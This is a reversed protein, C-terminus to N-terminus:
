VEVVIEGTKVNVDKILKHGKLKENVEKWSHTKRAKKIEELVNSLLQYKEYILEGKRQNEDASTQLEKIKDEQMTIMKQIRAQEKQSKTAPTKAESEAALEVASNFTKQKKKELDKYLELEFPAVSKIKNDSYYTVPNIKKTILSKISKLLGKAQEEDIKEGNQKVCSLMCIEKAYVGGFGLDVAITKSIPKKQKKIQKKLGDLTLKFFNVEKKPYTYKAGAKIEREKTKYSAVPVIITLDKKCLVMNGKSFLEVFIIYEDDKTRFLLKVIRESGIQEVKELRANSIYKRLASCFGFLKEPTPPSKTALYFISPLEINLLHKGKNTVYFQFVVKNKLPQVIKDVRAGELFRMEQVLYHLDLASIEAM